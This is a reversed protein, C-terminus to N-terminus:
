VPAPSQSLDGMTVYLGALNDLSGATDPHDPGGAKERIKVARDYLPQAKDYAETAQYLSALNM